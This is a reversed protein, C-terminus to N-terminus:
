SSSINKKDKLILGIDKRSVEKAGLEIAIKKKKKCIDFHSKYTNPFQHWKLDVGIKKAMEILEEETDALMHCMLMGRYKKNMQDVYVM